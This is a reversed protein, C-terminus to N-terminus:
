QMAVIMLETGVQKTLTLVPKYDDSSLDNVRSEFLELDVDVRRNLKRGAATKNDAIFCSTCYSTKINSGPVGAAILLSRVHVARQQAIDKNADKKGSVDTRGRVHVSKAEIALPLIENWVQKGAPGLTTKSAAFPITRRVVAFAPEMIMSTTIEKSTEQATGLDVIQHTEASEPEDNSTMPETMAADAVSETAAAQAPTAPQTEMAASDPRSKMSCANLALVGSLMLSILIQSKMIEGYYNVVM